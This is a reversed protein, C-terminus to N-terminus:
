EFEFKFRYRKLILNPVARAAHAVRPHHDSAVLIGRVVEGTEAAICGMYALIQAVADPRSTEAKLEIVTLTGKQDRALIDILGADVKRENGGDDVTLGMELDGLNRRLAAQLDRELAFTRGVAEGIFEEGIVSSEVGGTTESDVDAPEGGKFRIYDVLHSRYWPMQTPLKDIDIDLKSPNPRKARADVASYRFQKLLDTLQDRQYEADLDVGYAREIRKLAPARGARTTDALNRSRMYEDFARDQMTIQEV